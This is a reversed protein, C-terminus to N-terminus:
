INPSSIEVQAVIWNPSILVFSSFCYFILPGSGCGIGCIGEKERISAMFIKCRLATGGAM